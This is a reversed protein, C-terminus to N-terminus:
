IIIMAGAALLLGYTLNNFTKQNIKKHIKNGIYMAIIIPIISLILLYALDMTYLGKKIDAYMLVINLISWVASVNARFENKDQFASVLYIVLLSGGSVFMGHIVGAGILIPIAIYDPIKGKYPKFLINKLAVLVIIAGYIPILIHADVMAYMQIGFYMGVLMFVVIKTVEKTKLYKRNMIAVIICVAWSVINIVAKATDPGYLLITPPISLMVGAFGTLSQIINSIFIALMFIWEKINQLEM